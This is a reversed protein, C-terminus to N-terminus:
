NQTEARPQESAKREPLLRLIEEVLLMLKEPGREEAAQRCLERWREDDSM